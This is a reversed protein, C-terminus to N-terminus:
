NFHFRRSLFDVHYHDSTATASADGNSHFIIKQVDSYDMGSGWDFFNSNQLSYFTWTGNGEPFTYEAWGSGSDYVKMQLYADADNPQKLWFELRKNQIDLEM